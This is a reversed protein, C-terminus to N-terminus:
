HLHLGKKEHIDRYANSCQSLMQIFQIPDMLITFARNHIPYLFFPVNGVLIQDETFTPILSVYLM